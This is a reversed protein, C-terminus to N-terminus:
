DAVAFRGAEMADRRKSPLYVGEQAERIRKQRQNVSQALQMAQIRRNPNKENFKAIDERAAAKGEEDGAMAAMAFQEVLASRRAQLARDHQVIASKGEFSNRVSSPSFGAAQGLLSAADVEDQVVIGTKDRVGEDGYRLAKLPGRAVSPAMTELGRLYRGESMEQIGKLVNIGIGAVPGLAAAMASEGLRQGELGEQLDPFILKDLGVRGSIDWPTLRSLGHALVEAPKQGFTDALMNQLAVQADWPEDDDGGLMSAAALLTTVMPLGLAGAALGHMALLGGLAKRAQARAEPTAGKLSQQANRVLTYVMNQGYQKFLLVVRAVNGQMVRPRNNSSYDFHGDYTAQVAQEYAVKDGAGAERALRYAAVFTIQRNFKEAHHFMWSAARMVPRLKYSVNQDEGQAIGALDHAMTVDIVGARVAEDFAAKEEVSLSGTIDNKGRAAEGSAKLLATSAKGFGWKAGMVPYAVLATQTLNVMASAPSLGLHFMFGLSTLATSVANTKPNMAAEHRKVMEDVVQQAKVSDFNADASGADVRRQMEGLEDQLRDGYRLKALYSAGHFVNQAFARRADQSFGATGKRHIGHKAWSLDPLSSLYLQGLADELEARQKTDMGQKDLVGYLQEMFGRGVSDREAVFDKAKLVKGVTFGKGTPFATVLQRRTADAEAMTEARSVNAVKGEADKVVVLYQGFRALPFYVGKIHGFFEDDMRKLMSAKRESSIETREIREKIASRVDRMHQRYTDRARAFVDKAGPTLATYRAKLRTWDTKNDAEVFDKSPDIQALTADHMLEALVREDPLKAWDQALQDAGSGAENKDADMRAMLDSYSRMEPLMGGYVDVLQRRGLFQLGIGRYDTAKFGAQQKLNTVTAGQIAAGIRQSLAPTDTDGPEVGRRSYFIRERPNPSSLQDSQSVLGALIGNREGSVPRVGGGQGLLARFVAGRAATRGWTQDASRAGRDARAVDGADLGRGRVGEVNRPQAGALNSFTGTDLDYTLTQPGSAENDLARLSVDILREINGVHDGYVWRLPPIGLKDDGAVQRPHPAIHDTTGFKLASALMQEARRVMAVDSLGSPDGIFIRGTNHAFTAAINYVQGGMQGPKLRSVDLWVDSRSGVPPAQEGPRETIWRGTTEDMGFVEDKTPERSTITAWTGDPMTLTYMTEGGLDTSVVKIRPSHDAAIGAVTDASSKPLAFLEDKQSLEQLANQAREGAEVAASDLEGSHAPNERQAIGFALNVLDLSNFDGKHGAIKNWVGRLMSRVQALWRQVSNAPALGNPRVGMELAVQVAYPFLEQSSLEPGSSQVRAAAEDYVRREMSGAPAKAWGSIAGHLWGWGEEGLVAQGHKHMLEHAVVGLEDGARINDAILFVTRTKPDYFGQANGGDGGSEMAVPGILPEWEQKIESATAVVVRGLRNPLMGLGNVLERVAARVSDKTATSRQMSLITRALEPSMSQSFLVTAGGEERSEVAQFFADFAGRIQPMEGATPYPYGGELAFASAPLVNALYDNGANQDQLKSIVYSEFARASMEPKTTWYDKTKRDDLKRSREQMGTRNIASMVERFAARMEERVGDGRQADQTMFNDGEGRQRSFYNDLGHWWEHALTGAGERKTLNIVVTSPEYHAAFANQGGSGRAGFALGLRGGLSLARPPLNLVGALDMLADYARNLDQQRRGGEVYNGFQVGRFGFAEQFQEPTVDAGKRYDEGIRPANQDNRVPPVAKYKDLLGELEAQNDALYKRAAKIDPFGAKLEAVNRGIKKGIFFERAGGARKGYIEFTAGKTPAREEALLEAARKKFAEIAEERTDGKALERPWNAFAGGKAERSVSWITRPPNYEVRDYMSYRGVSVDIGKLSRDHGMAEYLAVKDAVGRPMSDRNLKVRVASPEQQGSLVDEAFGRLTEVQTSWGKLKWSSQPKTPVAERLARVLSVAELPAGGELLKQYDPEPWTKSLPHAKIDLEKAKGMGDAYAEAYLMKRAGHLTEGFDEIRTTSRPAAARPSRPGAAASDAGSEIALSASNVSASPQNQDSEQRPGAAPPDAQQQEVGPQSDFDAKDSEGVADSAVMEPAIDAITPDAAPQTQPADVKPARLVPGAKLEKADPATAHVRERLEPVDVWTGKGPRVAKVTVSWRGNEDPPLYSVVRDHGGYSKVINGPTFYDARAKEEALAKKALVGRLKKSPKPPAVPEAEAAQASPSNKVAELAQEVPADLVIAKVPKGEEAAALAQHHGDIIHGDSSVIVARAGTATKAQEVKSPSYEAQTPKLEAADVMTTEHDIGQANLHKVLGGHSQTPVQPMEARPIGLTGTEPAFQQEDGVPQPQPAATLGAATAPAAGAQAPQPSAQQTEPPSPERTVGTTAPVPAPGAAEVAAPGATPVPAAVPSIQPAAAQANAAKQKQARVRALGERLNTPAIPEPEAAVPAPSQSAEAQNVAPPAVPQLKALADEVRRRQAMLPVNWSGNEAARRKVEELKALLGVEEGTPIPAEVLDSGAITSAVGAQEQATLPVQVAPAEPATEQTGAEAPAQAEAQAVQTAGSDIATLAAASLSGGQEASAAVAERVPDSAPIPTVETIDGSAIRSLRTNRDESTSATGDAGVDIVPAPLALVPSAETAPEVPATETPPVPESAVDAPAQSRRRAADVAGAGAGMVGGGIGGMVASLATDELNQATTPNKFAGVQEIVNQAGETAGEKLVGKGAEKLISGAGIPAGKLVGLAKGMGVRELATAPIAAALARGKDEQGVEKQEQRIGGYEQAFIPLLSGAVGGITAGVAAGGPGAALGGVAGGAKAGAWGGAAAAGIQPAFQGVSEKVALWPKEVVDSLKTVGAPNRDIIGQGTERMAQTVTNPGTVDEAATATSTLMQGGTRKITPIFGPEAPAPKAEPFAEEYGFGTKGGSHPAPFADEYSFPNQAM